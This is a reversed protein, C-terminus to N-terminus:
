RGKRFSGRGHYTDITCSFHKGCNVCRITHSIIDDVWCGQEDKIKDLPFIGFVLEFDGLDVLQKIYNLCDIYEKPSHFFDCLQLKACSNCM